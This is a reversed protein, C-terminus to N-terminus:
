AHKTLVFAVSIVQKKNGKIIFHWIGYKIRQMPRHLKRRGSEGPCCETFKTRWSLPCHGGNRRENQMYKGHFHRLFLYRWDDHSTCLKCIHCIRDKESPIDFNHPRRACIFRQLTHFDFYIALISRPPLIQVTLNWNKYICAHHRAQFISVKGFHFRITVTGVATTPQQRGNDATTPCPCADKFPLNNNNNNCPIASYVYPPFFGVGYQVSESTLLVWLCCM